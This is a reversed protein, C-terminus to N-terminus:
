TKELKEVAKKWKGLQAELEKLRIEYSTVDMGVEKGAEILKRLTNIREEIVKLREKLSEVIHKM